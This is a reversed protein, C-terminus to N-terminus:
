WASRVRAWATALVARLAGFRGPPVAAPMDEPARHRGVYVDGPTLVRELPFLPQAAGQDVRPTPPPPPPLPDPGPPTGPPGPLFDEDNPDITRCGGTPEVLGITQPNYPLEGALEPRRLTPFPGTALFEPMRTTAEGVPRQIERTPEDALGARGPRDAMPIDGTDSPDYTLLDTM